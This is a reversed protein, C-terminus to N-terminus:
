QEKTSKLAAVVPRPDRGYYWGNNHWRSDSVGEDSLIWTCVATLSSSEIWEYMDVTLQAWHEESYTGWGLYELHEPSYAGGETSITVPTVGFAVEFLGYYYEYGRMCMDDFGWDQWPDYDLPRNFPSTHTALWIAGDAVLGGLDSHKSSLYRMMQSAWMPGSYTQNVGGRDTPAMAYFAPRGGMAVVEMADLYWDEAVREVLATNHWAMQNKYEDKWEGDLNPENGIEFYEVGISILAPIQNMMGRDLRGPFQHGQYMRVIPTIDNQLLLDLWSNYTTMTKFWKIGMAKLEAIWWEWEPPPASTVPPAHVGRKPAAPPSPLSLRDKFLRVGSVNGVDRYHPATAYAPDGCAVSNGEIGYLFVFHAGNNVALIVIHTHLLAQLESATYGGAGRDERYVWELGDFLDAFKSWTVLDDDYFVGAEHLLRNLDPPLADYRLHQRLLLALNCLVCGHTGITETGLPGGLNTDAWEPNKMWVHGATIVPPRLAYYLEAPSDCTLPILIAGAYHTNFFDFIDREYEDPNVIYITRSVPGGGADDGSYGVTVRRDWTALVAEVAWEPEYHQPILVYSRNFEVRPPVWDGPPDVPTHGPYVFDRAPHEAAYAILLDAVATNAVDFDSWPPGFSGWTFITAGIVYDDQQLEQDYWVLQEFYYKAKDPEHDHHSWFDGLQRWTGTPCGPSAPGIMPDLGCETIGLPILDLGANKFLEYVQRYRLTTWGALTGDALRCDENPDVQYQGTMWWMWTAGYEHLGLIAEYQPAAQIAPYFAPWLSLGPRGAAFNGIVCKLGMDAMLKMREIEFQAYWAMEEQTNWVPENHGEWYTIDNAEYTAMQDTVFQLAAEAPTKGTTYQLQADYGSTIHRGIVLVGPATEMGFSDVLKVLGPHSDPPYAGGCLVHPGLKSQM